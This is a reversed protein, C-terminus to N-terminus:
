EEENWVTGMGDGVASIVRFPVRPGVNGGVSPFDVWGNVKRYASCRLHGKAQKKKKKKGKIGASLM